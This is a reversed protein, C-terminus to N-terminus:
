SLLRGVSQTSRGSEYPLWWSVIARAGLKRRRGWRDRRTALRNPSESEGLDKIPIRRGLHDVCCRCNLFPDARPAKLLALHCAECLSASKLKARKVEPPGARRMAEESWRFMLKLFQAIKSASFTGYWLARSPRWQGVDQTSTPRIIAVPPFKTSLFLTPSPGSSTPRCPTATLVRPPREM